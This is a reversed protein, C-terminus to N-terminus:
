QWTARLRDFTHDPPFDHRAAFICDGNEQCYEVREKISCRRWYEGIEDYEMESWRDENLVPYNEIEEEIAKGIEMKAPDSEHICLYEVWGVAWHGFNFIEVTESEGGLRDLTEAWNCRTIIDSDRHRAAVVYWGPFKTPGIYNSLSDWGSPRQFATELTQM